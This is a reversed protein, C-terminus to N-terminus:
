SELKRLAAEGDPGDVDVVFIGSLQGTAAAVNLRPEALWWAEIKERDITADLHGHPTAPTKARAACPSVHVGISALALAATLTPSRTMERGRLPLAGTIQAPAERGPDYTRSATM